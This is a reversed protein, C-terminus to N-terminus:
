LPMEYTSVHEAYHVSAFHAFFSFGLNFTDYRYPPRHTDELGKTYLVGV